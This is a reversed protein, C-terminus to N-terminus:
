LSFNFFIGLINSVGYISPCAGYLSSISIILSFFNLSSKIFLTIWLYSGYRNKFELYLKEAKSVTELSFKERLDSFINEPNGYIITRYEKKIVSFIYSTEDDSLVIGNKLAFSKVDCEKMNYVYNDILKQILNIVM